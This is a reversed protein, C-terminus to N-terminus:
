IIKLKGSMNTMNGLFNAMQIILAYTIAFILVPYFLVAMWYSGLGNQLLGLTQPLGSQPSIANLQAGPGNGYQGLMATASEVQSQLGPNTFYYAVSFLTPMIIYTGIAVAIMMGGLGRLPFISRLIIGPILFVPIAAYMLIMILYFEGYLLALADTQFSIYTEAPIIFLVTVAPEYFDIADDTGVCPILGSSTGASTSGTCFALRTAVLQSDTAYINFLSTLMTQTSSITNSIYSLSTVYPNTGIILSPILGVMVATLFLFGIVIIATAIAEYYEGIAFNRIKSNKLLQAAIFMVTAITFSLFVAILALPEWNAWQSAISQNVSQCYWPAAQSIVGGACYTQQASFALAASSFVLLLVVAYIRMKAGDYLM